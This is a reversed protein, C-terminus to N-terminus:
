YYLCYLRQLTVSTCETVLCLLLIYKQAKNQANFLINLNQPASNHLKSGETSQCQQNPPLFPMRDTFGAHHPAPMTTQRSRPATKCIAWSIGSGSVTEQKLLIWIPKVKRTGARKPMTGSSRGNFTHTHTHTNNHLKTITYLAHNCLSTSCRCQTDLPSATEETHSLTESVCGRAPHWHKWLSDRGSM